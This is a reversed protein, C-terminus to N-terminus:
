SAMTLARFARADQVVSDFRTYGLFAVQLNDAYREDLRRFAYGGGQRVVFKSFDCVAMPNADAGIDPMSNNILVPVGEIKDPAGMTADGKQYIPRDDGTGFALQRIAGLTADNMVIYFNPSQRYAKDVSHILQVIEERAIANNAAATVGTTINHMFGVPQNSTGDGITLGAELARGFRDAFIQALQGVLNVENDQMLEISLRVMTKLMNAGVQISGFTMDSASTTASEAGWSATVNTEDLNPMDINRGHSTQIFNAVGLVSSYYKMAKYLQKNFDDPVLFGGNADSSSVLNARMEPNLGNAGGRLYAEYSEMPKVEVKNDVDVIVEKAAFASSRAELEISYSVNELEDLLEKSRSVEETTLARNEIQALSRLEAKIKAEQEKLFKIKM